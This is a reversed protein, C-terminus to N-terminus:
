NGSLKEELISELRNVKEELEAMQRFKKRRKMAAHYEKENTNIIYSDNVRSYDTHDKVKQIKM